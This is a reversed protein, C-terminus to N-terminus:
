SAIRLLSIARPSVCRCCPSSCRPSLSRCASMLRANFPLSVDVEAKEETLLQTQSESRWAHSVVEWAAEEYLVVEVLVTSANLPTLLVDLPAPAPVLCPDATRVPM